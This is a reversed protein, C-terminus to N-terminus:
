RSVFYEPLDVLRCLGEAMPVSPHWQLLRCAKSIDVELNGLLREAVKERGILRAAMRLVAEPVPMLRPAAGCARAMRRFLEATSIAEGDSVCFVQNAAAPHDICTLILDVLNDIGVFSGHARQRQDVVMM